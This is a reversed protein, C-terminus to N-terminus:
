TLNLKYRPSTTGLPNEILPSGKEQVMQYAGTRLSFVDMVNLPLGYAIEFGRGDVTEVTVDSGTSTHLSFGVKHGVDVMQGNITLVTNMTM